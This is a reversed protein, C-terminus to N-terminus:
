QSEGLFLRRVAIEFIFLAFAVVILPGRLPEHVASTHQREVKEVSIPNIEGGSAEALRRLLAVNVDPRPLERKPDYTATFGVPPYAIERGKREEVLDIRYEGIPLTPLAAQLHGTAVAKLIGESKTGNGSATFRFQSESATVEYLYLDLIPQTGL